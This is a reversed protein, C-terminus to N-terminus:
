FPHAGHAGINFMVQFLSELATSGEAYSTRRVQGRIQSFESPWYTLTGSVGTDHLTGADARGSRDFRAGAFWRRGMQYDGSVFVGFALQRGDPQDRGSWVFESRGIFSRYIARQLPRWRFTADIGYLRTAFAQGEEPGSGNHGYAYSAGLDLNASDTLDHYGRVHATVSVDSPRRAVFVDGADGRFVQGTAELFMWPNPILRAVSIGADSLGEEGGLLNETVLPRDAWPMMHTHLTNIKGFASRIKGVRALLGGPLTSFTVYGEELDVGEEGFALFFDARAYPDVIAQLSVESEPMQLPAVPDVDNTGVAALFNGIVAVDPNFIKSAATVNGYLPLAGAPGGAGAAGPPVEVVPAPPAAPPAAAADAGIGELRAQLAALRAEFEAKLREIEERVAQVAGADPQAAANAAGGFVAALFLVFGLLRPMRM